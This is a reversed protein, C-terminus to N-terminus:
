LGKKQLFRLLKNHSATVPLQELEEATVFRLDKKEKFKADTQGPYLKVTIQFKTIAHKLQTLQKEELRIHKKRFYSVAKKHDTDEALPMQWFGQNRREGSRREILVRGQEDRVFVAVDERRVTRPLNKKCPYLSQSGEACAKCMANLPCLLCSPNQPTCVTAGLDMMAQNFYSCARPHDSEAARCVLETSIRWLLDRSKLESPIQEFTITLLRCLVRVVNGDVIPRPQNFAISCIAGATYPGIGPLTLLESHETPFKGGFRTVIAQAAKLLNRARNYYGLGEWMKMVEQETAQALAAADPWREMWRKWYPIVTAVQTQQLMSESIWISYASHPTGDAKLERWPMPRAEPRFWALLKDAALRYPFDPLSSPITQQSAKRPSVSRKTAAM